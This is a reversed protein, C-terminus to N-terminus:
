SAIEALTAALSEALRDRASPAGPLGIRLWTPHEQFRRTWIHRRALAAHLAAADDNRVLRFLSTGGLVELGHARLVDDLADRECALRERMAKQWDLDRLAATGIALAPGSVAWSGLNAEIAKGFPTQAVVFGLRLGALGFFKGFSRLVAVPETDLLPLLSAEPTADAFAEDVILLGGRAGLDRAFQLLTEPAVLRGDPNNPNVLIVTSARAADELCAVTRLSRGAAHWADLHGSYTPSVIAADGEPALRALVSLAAQTGPAAAITLAQPAEYATRAAAILAEGSATDPLRMWDNEVILDDYHGGGWAHPNIGTSLDLWDETEGGYRAKALTINGGHNM